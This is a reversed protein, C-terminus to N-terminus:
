GESTVLSLAWQDVDASARAQLRALSMHCPIEPLTLVLPVFVILDGRDAHFKKIGEVTEPHDYDIGLWEIPRGREDVKIVAVREFDEEIPWALGTSEYETDTDM